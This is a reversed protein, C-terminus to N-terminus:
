GERVLTWLRNLAAQAVRREEASVEPGQAEARLEEAATRLAGGAAILDLDDADYETALEEDRLDLLAFDPAAERVAAEFAGRETMRLYGAARLQVLVDRRAARDPPLWRDLEARVDMGPSLMLEPARWDFRGTEVPAIEPLACAGEITM